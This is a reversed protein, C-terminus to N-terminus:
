AYSTCHGKFMLKCITGTDTATDTDTATGTATGTATATAAATAAAAAYGRYIIVDLKVLEFKGDESDVAAGIVFSNTAEFDDTGM